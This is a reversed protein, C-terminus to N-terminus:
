FIIKKFFSKGYARALVVRTKIGLSKPALCLDEFHLARILPPRIPLLKRYKEFFNGINEKGFHLLADEYAGSINKESLKPACNEMKIYKQFFDLDYPPM